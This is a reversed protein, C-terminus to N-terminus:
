AGGYVRDVEMLPGGKEREVQQILLINKQDFASLLKDSYKADAKYWPQRKFYAAIIADHFRYGHHAYIENRLVSLEGRSKKRLDALTFLRKFQLAQSDQIRRINERLLSAEIGTTYDNGDDDKLRRLLEALGLDNEANALFVANRREVYTLDDPSVKHTAHYWAQTNFYDQVWKERFIHGHRGYIGDRLLTLDVMSLNAVDDYTVARQSLAADGPRVGQGGFIVVNDSKENPEAVSVSLSAYLGLLLFSLFFSLSKKM